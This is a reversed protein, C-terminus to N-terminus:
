VGRQEADLRHRHADDGGAGAPRRWVPEDPLAPWPDAAWRGAAPRTTTGAAPPVGGAHGPEAPLAPWPDVPPTAGPDPRDRLDAGTRPVGPAGAVMRPLPNATATGPTHGAAFWPAGITPSATDGIRAAPFM